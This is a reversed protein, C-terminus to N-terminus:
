AEEDMVLLDRCRSELWDAHTSDAFVDESRAIGLRIKADIMAVLAEFQEETMQM